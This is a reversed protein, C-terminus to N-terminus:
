VVRVGLIATCGARLVEDVGNGSDGIYGVSPLDDARAPLKRCM